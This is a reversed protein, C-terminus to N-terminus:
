DPGCDRCTFTRPAYLEQYKKLYEKYKSTGTFPLTEDEIEEKFIENFHLKCFPLAGVRVMERHIGTCEICELNYVIIADRM